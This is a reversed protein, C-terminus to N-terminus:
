KDELFVGILKAKEIAVVSHVLRANFVVSDGAELFYKQGDLMFECKGEVHYAFEVGQNTHPDIAKGKKLESYTVVINDAIMRRPGIVKTMLVGSSVCKQDKGKICIFPETEDELFSYISRNVQHAIESLLGVSPSSKDSEIRHLTVVSIGLKAALQELTLGSKKREVKIKAGLNKM